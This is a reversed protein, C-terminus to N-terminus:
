NTLSGRYPHMTFTLTRKLSFRTLPERKTKLCYGTSIESRYNSAMETTLRGQACVHCPLSRAAALLEARNDPFSLTVQCCPPGCEMEAIM